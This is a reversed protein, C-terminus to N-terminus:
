CVLVFDEEFLSKSVLAAHLFKHFLERDVKCTDNVDLHLKQVILLSLLLGELRDLIVAM